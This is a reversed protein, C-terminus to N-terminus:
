FIFASNQRYTEITKSLRENRKRQLGLGPQREAVDKAISPHTGLSSVIKLNLTSHRIKESSLRMMGDSMWLQIHFEPPNHRPFIGRKIVM